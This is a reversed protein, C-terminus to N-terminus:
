PSSRSLSLNDLRDDDIEMELEEDIIDAMDAAVHARLANRILKDTKDM